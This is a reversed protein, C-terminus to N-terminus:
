EKVVFSIKVCVRYKVIKNGEVIAKLNEVFVEQIGEVTKAAVAVADQAAAEWSENSDALIEIVKVVAM